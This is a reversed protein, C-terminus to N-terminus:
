KFFNKHNMEYSNRNVTQTPTLNRIKKNIRIGENRKACFEYNLYCGM